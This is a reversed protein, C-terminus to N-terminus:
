LLALWCSTWLTGVGRGSVKVLLLSAKSAGGHPLAKSIAATQKVRTPRRHSLQNSTSPGVSANSSMASPMTIEIACQQHGNASTGQQCARLRCFSCKCKTYLVCRALQEHAHGHVYMATNLPLHQHFMILDRNAQGEVGAALLLAALQRPDPGTAALKSCSSSQPIQPHPKRVSALKRTLEAESRRGHACRGSLSALRFSPSIASVLTDLAAASAAPTRRVATTVATGM